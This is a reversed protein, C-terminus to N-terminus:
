FRGAHPHRRGGDPPHLDRQRGPTLIETFLARGEFSATIDYFVLEDAGAANYLRAMEVPDAVDKIGEFNTGKVVRGNRVDLCPIIRKTIMKRKGRRKNRYWSYPLPCPGAGRHLPEQGPHRGGGGHRELERLEAESSIGGSATFELGPVEASLQRYLALNTGQMAGDCAIDTYIIAKCARQRWGAQLLGRGKRRQGRELRPHCCLWRQRGRGGRDSRRVKAAMRATFEFDTVAVSGLICRGVGLSLYREIREETRIGGGVEIYLGGQKALAAITDYNSLTGDKAGDLDVVHLYKAGAAVFQRAQACPDTGYVTMKDYDGQTLRVVQGDRLDIAPYLKM